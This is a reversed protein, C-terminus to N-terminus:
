LCTCAYVRDSQSPTTCNLHIYPAGCRFCTIKTRSKVLKILLSTSPSLTLAKSNYIQHLRVGGTGAFNNADPRDALIKNNNRQAGGQQEKSTTLGHDVTAVEQDRDVPFFERAGIEAESVAYSPAASCSQRPSFLMERRRLTPLRTQQTEATCRNGTCTAVEIDAM